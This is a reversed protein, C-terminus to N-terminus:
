ASKNKNNKNIKKLVAKLNTNIKEMKPITKFINLATTKIKNDSIKNIQNLWKDYDDNYIKAYEYNKYLKLYNVAEEFQENLLLTEILNYLYGEEKGSYEYAKQAYNVADKYKGEDVYICALTTCAGIHKPKVRLIQKLGKEIKNKNEKNSNYRNLLDTFESEAKTEEYFKKMEKLDKKMLNLNTESQVLQSEMEKAKITVDDVQIQMENKQKKTDEIIRDMEKEKNELFKEFCIPIAVGLIAMIIALTALWKNLWDAQILYYQKMFDDKPLEINKYVIKHKNDSQSNINNLMNEIKIQNQDFKKTMDTTYNYNIIVSTFLIILSIIISILLFYFFTIKTKVQNLIKKM